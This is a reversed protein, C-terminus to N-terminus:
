PQGKLTEPDWGLQRIRARINEAEVVRKEAEAIRLRETLSTVFKSPHPCKPGKGIHRPFRHMEGVVNDLDKLFTEYCQACGLRAAKKYESRTLGCLPCTTEKAPSPMKGSFEVAAGLIMGMIEPLTEKIVELVEPSAELSASPKEKKPTQAKACAKCVYLEQEEQNIVKRIAQQAEAQKCLECKM